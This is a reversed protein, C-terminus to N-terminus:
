DADRSSHWNEIAPQSWWGKAASAPSWRLTVYGHGHRLTVIAHWACAGFPGLWDRSVVCIGPNVAVRAALFIVVLSTCFVCSFVVVSVYFWLLM